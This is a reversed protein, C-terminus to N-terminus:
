GNRGPNGTVADVYGPGDGIWWVPRLVASEEDGDDYLYGLHMPYSAAEAPDRGMSRLAAAVCERAAQEDLISHMTGEIPTLRALQVTGHVMSRGRLLLVVCRDTSLGRWRQEFVFTHGQDWDYMPRDGGSASRKVSTVVLSSDPPLPGFTRQLWERLFQEAEQDTAFPPEPARRTDGGHGVEVSGWGVSCNELPELPRVVVSRLQPLETPAPEAIPPEAVPPPAAEPGSHVPPTSCAAGLLCLLWAARPVFPRNGM